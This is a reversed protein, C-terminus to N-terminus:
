KQKRRRKQGSYKGKKKRKMKPSKVVGINKLKKGGGERESEGM